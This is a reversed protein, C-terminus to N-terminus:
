TKTGGSGLRRRQGNRDRRKCEVFTAAAATPQNITVTGNVTLVVAGQTLSSAASSPAFTLGTCVTNINATYSAGSAVVVAPLNTSLASGGITKAAGTLTVANAGGIFTLVTIQGIEGGGNYEEWHLPLCGSEIQLNGFTISATPTITSSITFTTNSTANLLLTTTASLNLGININSGAVTSFVPANVGGFSLGGNFNITGTGTMSLTGANLALPSSLTVTGTAVSVVEDAATANSAFALPGSVTLAGTTVAIQAIRSATSNVGGISLGGNVIASGGNINWSITVAGTPQNLSVANLITLGNVGAHTLSNALAMATFTLSNVSASAVDLTVTVAAGALVPNGIFVDDGSTPVAERGYTQSATTAGANATLTIQSDNQISAVTGIVTGPTSQLM